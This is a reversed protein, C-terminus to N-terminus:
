EPLLDWFSIEGESTARQNNSLTISSGSRRGKRAACEGRVFYFYEMWWGEVRGQGSGGGVENCADEEATLLVLCASLFWGRDRFISFCRSHRLDSQYVKMLRQERRPMKIRREVGITNCGSVGPDPRPWEIACGSEDQQSNIGQTWSWCSGGPILFLLGSLLFLNGLYGELLIWFLARHRPFLGTIILRNIVATNGRLPLGNNRLLLDGSAIVRLSGLQEPAEAPSLVPNSFGSYFLCLPGPRAPTIASPKPPFEM